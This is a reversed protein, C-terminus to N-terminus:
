AGSFSICLYVYFTELGLHLGELLFQHQLLFSLDVSSEM